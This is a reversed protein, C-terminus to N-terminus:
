RRSTACCAASTTTASRSPSGDAGARATRGIRHVYSEPVNPLEFNCSTASRTSTSAARPSTPPSWPASTAPRSPPWRRARAPGPEQRRPHRRRRHRGGGSPARGPRRRAQHPHLRPRAQHSPDAFLEALLAGQKRRSSSSSASTSASSTTTSPAGGLGQGPDNLLEGALKGIETPMTASFFLNQRQTPLKAVIKRIPLVFGLDLM